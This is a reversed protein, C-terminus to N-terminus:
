RMIKAMDDAARAEEIWKVMWNVELEMINAM